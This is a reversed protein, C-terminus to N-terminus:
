FVNSVSKIFIVILCHVAYSVEVDSQPRIYVKSQGVLARIDTVSLQRHNLKHLNHRGCASATCLDFGVCRRLAPFSAMIIDELIEISMNTIDQFVVKKEWLGNKLLLERQPASLMVNKMNSDALCLCKQTWKVVDERKVSLSRRATIIRNTRVTTRHRAIAQM